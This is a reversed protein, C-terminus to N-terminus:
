KLSLVDVAAQPLRRRRQSRNDAVVTVCDDEDSSYSLDDEEDDSEIFTTETNNSGEDTFDYKSSRTTRALKAKYAEWLVKDATQTCASAVVDSSLVGLECSKSPCPLAKNKPCVDRLAVPRGFVWTKVYSKVCAPCFSHVGTSCCASTSIQKKMEQHCCHCAALRQPPMPHSFESSEDREPEPRRVHPVPVATDKDLGKSQLRRYGSKKTASSRPLCTRKKSPFMSYMKKLLVLRLNVCCYVTRTKEFILALDPTGLVFERNRQFYQVSYESCKNAM